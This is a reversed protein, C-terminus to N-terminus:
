RRYGWHGRDRDHDWDRRRDRDRWRGGVWGGYYPAPSVYENVYPAGYGYPTPCPDVYPTAYGYSYGYSYSPRVGIYVGGRHEYREHYRNDRDGWGAFMTSSALLLGACGALIKHKM